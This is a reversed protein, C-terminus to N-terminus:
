PGVRAYGFHRHIVQPLAKAATAQIHEGQQEGRVVYTQGPRLLVDEEPERTFICISGKVVYSTGQIESHYHWPVARARRMQDGISSGFTCHKEDQM